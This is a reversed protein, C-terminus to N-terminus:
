ILQELDDWQRATLCSNANLTQRARSGLNEVMSVVVRKCLLLPHKKAPEVFGERGTAQLGSAM